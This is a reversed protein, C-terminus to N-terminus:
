HASKPAHQKRFFRGRLCNAAVVIPSTLSPVFADMAAVMAVPSPQDLKKRRAHACFRLIKKHTYCTGEPFCSSDCGCTSSLKHFISNTTGRRSAITIRSVREARMRPLLFKITKYLSYAEVVVLYTPRAFCLIAPLLSLWWVSDQVYM